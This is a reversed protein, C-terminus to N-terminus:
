AGEPADVDVPDQWYVPHILHTGPIGQFETERSPGFRLDGSTELIARTLSSVLVEGGAAKNGVRAALNVHQGFLDGSDDTVAEGTHMGIRVRIRALAPDSASNLQRQITCMAEVAGRASPFSMMFGDGVNKIVRGRQAQVSTRVLEDHAELTRMWQQDGLSVLHDTSNEIDSFAITITGDHHGRPAAPPEAIALAAVSEISTAKPDFAPPVVTLTERSGGAPSPALQGITITTSGGLTIVGGPPVMLRTTVPEEGITTGNRSGLDSVMVGGEVPELELHRRSVRPDTVMLGDCERGVTIRGVLLLV